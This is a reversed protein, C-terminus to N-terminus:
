EDEGHLEVYVAGMSQTHTMQIGASDSVGTVKTFRVQLMALDYPLVLQVNVSDLVETETRVNGEHDVTERQVRSPDPMVGESMPRGSHDMVVYRIQGVEPTGPVPVDV